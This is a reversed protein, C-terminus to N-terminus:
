IWCNRARYVNPRALDQSKEACNPLFRVLDLQMKNSELSKKTEGLVSLWKSAVRISLGTVIRTLKPNSVFKVWVM